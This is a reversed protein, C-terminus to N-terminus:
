GRNCLRLLSRIWHLLGGELEPRADASINTLIWMYTMVQHLAGLPKSAEFAEILRDMSMYDTWAELYADRLRTDADPNDALVSEDFYAGSITAMEFFPHSVCVDTWDFYTYGSERILINGGLDGHVLTHPVGYQALRACLLKLPMSLSRLANVEADSLGGPGGSLMRECSAILPDIMEVMFGLRRDPINLSQWLDIHAVQAAQVKSFLRLAEEWRAIDACEHLMEGGFDPMLLWGREADMALPAPLLEPCREAIAQMVRGEHSMFPPTAKFYVDGHETTVQMTCSLGWARQHAIPSLATFGPEALQALIWDCAADHWGIEEWPARLPSPHAADAFWKRTAAGVHPNAFRASSAQERTLWRAGLPLAADSQRAVAIFVRWTQEGDEGRAACKLTWADFGLQRRIEANIHGVIRADTTAPAFEPVDWADRADDSAPRSPPLALVSGGEPHVVVIYYKM